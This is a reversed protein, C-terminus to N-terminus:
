VQPSYKYRPSAMLRVGYVKGGGKNGLPGECPPPGHMRECVVCSCIRESSSSQPADIDDGGHRGNRLYSWLLGREPLGGPFGGTGFDSKQPVEAGATDKMDLADLVEVKGGRSRRERECGGSSNLKRWTPASCGDPTDSEADRLVQDRRRQKVAEKAKREGGGTCSYKRETVEYKKKM